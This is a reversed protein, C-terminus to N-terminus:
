SKLLKFMSKDGFQFNVHIFVKIETNESVLRDQGNRMQCM